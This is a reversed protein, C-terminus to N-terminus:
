VNGQLGLDRKSQESLHNILLTRHDIWVMGRQKIIIWILLCAFMQRYWKCPQLPLWRGPHHQFNQYYHHRCNYCLINTNPVSLTCLASPLPLFATSDLPSSTPSPPLLIHCTSQCSIAFEPDIKAQTSYYEIMSKCIRLMRESHAQM